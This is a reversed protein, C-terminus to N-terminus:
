KFYIINSWLPNSGQYCHVRVRCETTWTFTKQDTVLEITKCADQLSKGSDIQQMVRDWNYVKFLNGYGSITITSGNQSIEPRPQPTPNDNGTMTKTSDCSAIVILSVFILILNKM